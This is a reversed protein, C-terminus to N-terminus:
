EPVPTFYQITLIFVELDGHCQSLSAILTVMRSCQLQYQYSIIYFHILNEQTEKM